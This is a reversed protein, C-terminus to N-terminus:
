GESVTFWQDRLPFLYRDTMFNLVRRAQTFAASIDRLATGSGGVREVEASAQRYSASGISELFDIGSSDDNDGNGAKVKGGTVAGKLRKRQMPRFLRSGTYDPFVGTLFLSLDGLRRFLAGREAEPVIELLEILRMLDLESYRRRRWGRATHVWFSGSAVRTYSALLEALFLRHNSPASFQRLSAVEFVPVRQAPGVWEHVFAANELDHHARSLLVSFILFPSARLMAEQYGIAGFGQPETADMGQSTSEDRAAFLARYVEDSELIVQLQQPSDQLLALLGDTGGAHSAAALFKLDADNLHELYASTDM